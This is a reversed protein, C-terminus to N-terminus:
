HGPGPSSGVVDELRLLHVGGALDGVAVTGDPKLASVSWLVTELGIRAILSRYKVNWFAATTDESVSVLQGAGCALDL